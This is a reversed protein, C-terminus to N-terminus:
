LFDNQKVTIVTSVLALELPPRADQVKQKFSPTDLTFDHNGAIVLKLPADLEKLVGLTTRMEALKSEETLDGCHIAVGARPSPLHEDLAMGHTDSLILITTKIAGINAAPIPGSINMIAATMDNHQAQQQPFSTKMYHLPRIKPQSTLLIQQIAM